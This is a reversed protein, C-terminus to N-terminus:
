LLPQNEILMIANSKYENFRQNIEKNTLYSILHDGYPADGKFGFNKTKCIGSIKDNIPVADGIQTRVHFNEGYAFFQSVANVDPIFFTGSAHEHAPVPIVYTDPYDFMKCKVGYPAAGMDYISGAFLGTGYSLSVLTYDQIDSTEENKNNFKFTNDNKIHSSRYLLLSTQALETCELAAANRIMNALMKAADCSLPSLKYPPSNFRTAPSENEGNEKSIFLDEDAGYRILLNIEKEATDLWEEFSLGKGDKFMSSAISKNLRFAVDQVCPDTNDGPNPFCNAHWCKERTPKMKGVQAQELLSCAKRGNKIDENICKKLLALEYLTRPIFAIELSKDIKAVKERIKNARNKCLEEIKLRDNPHKNAINILSYKNFIKYVKLYTEQSVKRKNKSFVIFEGNGNDIIGEPINPLNKPLQYEDKSIQLPPHRFTQKYKKPATQNLSLIAAVASITLLSITTTNDFNMAYSGGALGFFTRALFNYKSTGVQNCPHDDQTAYPKITINSNNIITLAMKGKSKFYVYM